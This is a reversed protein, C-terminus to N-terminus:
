SADVPTAYVRRAGAVDRPTHRKLPHGCGCGSDLRVIVVPVTDAPVGDTPDLTLAWTGDAAEPARPAEAVVQFAGDRHQWIVTRRGDYVMRCHRHLNDPDAPHAVLVPFLNM